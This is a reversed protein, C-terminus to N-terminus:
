KAATKIKPDLTSAAELEAKGAATNHDTKLYFQGLAYHAQASKPHESVADLLEKRASDYQRLHTYIFAHARHGGVADMKAIAEAQEKAKQISGGLFGPALTYFQLLAIRTDADNPDLEVAKEFEARTRKAYGMRRFVNARQALKGYAEGLLYHAKANDPDAKVEQELLRAATGPDDRNIAARGQDMLNDRAAAAPLAVAAALVVAAVHRM